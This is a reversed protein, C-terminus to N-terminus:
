IIRPDFNYLDKIKSYIEKTLNNRSKKDNDLLKHGHYVPCNNEDVRNEFSFVAVLGNSEAYILRKGAGSGSGIANVLAEVVKEDDMNLPSVLVGNEMYHEDCNHKPYDFNFVRQPQRNEVFWQHIDQINRLHIIQRNEFKQNEIDYCVIVESLSNAGLGIVLPSNYVGAHAEITHSIDNMGSDWVCHISNPLKEHKVDTLTAFRNRVLRINNKDEKDEDSLYEILDKFLSQDFFGTYEEHDIFNIIKGLKTLSESVFREGANPKVPLTFYIKIM